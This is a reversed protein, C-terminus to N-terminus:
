GGSGGRALAPLDGTDVWGIKECTWVHLHPPCSDPDDLTGVGVHVEGPFRPGEYSLTTGCDGCFHRVTGSPAHYGAPVGEVFEFRSMPWCATTWYAAGCAARCSSCHCNVSWLAPGRVQYRVTGCLCGGEMIGDRWM